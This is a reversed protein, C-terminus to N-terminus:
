KKLPFKQSLDIKVGMRILRMMYEDLEEMKRELMEINILGNTNAHNIINRIDVWEHYMRILEIVMQEGQGYSVKTRGCAEKYRMNIGNKRIDKNIIQKFWLYKAVDPRVKGEELYYTKPDWSTEKLMENLLNEIEKSDKYYLIKSDVIGDPLKAKIITVAQQYLKKERCWKLQDLVEPRNDTVETRDFLHHKNYDAELDQVFAAFLPNPNKMKRYDQLARGLSKLSEPFKLTDCILIADSIKKIEQIVKKEAEMGKLKDSGLFEALTDGRGTRLFENMGAVMDYILNNMSTDVIPNAQGRGLNKIDFDTAVSERVRIGSMELMKVASNVIFTEHRRAGQM